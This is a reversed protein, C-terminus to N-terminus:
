CGGNQLADIFGQIDQGNVSGDGNTDCVCPSCPNGPPGSQLCEIFGQIDQGNVSGDCNTDAACCGGGVVLTYDHTEGYYKQGCPDLTEFSGDVMRVRLRTPGAVADNPVTITGYYPGAGSGSLPIYEGADYWDFDQNWDVWAGGIDSYYPNGIYVTIPYSGGVDVNGSIYTFDGYGSPQWTYDFHNIVGTDVTVGDIYESFILHTASCTPPCATGTVTITYPGQAGYAPDLLVPYYYTGPAVESFEVYYNGDNCFGYSSYYIYNYCPCGTVLVIYINGFPPNTGCYEVRINLCDETYFAEWCERLGLLYCDVTSGSNDGNFVLPSGEQLLVPTVDQCNDNPPPPPPIVGTINLQYPGEVGGCQTYIPVYYTGAPLAYYYTTINGDGCSYFDYASAFVFSGSCPCSQDLVIGVTNFAPSTGCYDITIDLTEQTTFQEWVEGPWGLYPCDPTAGTNDGTYTLTGGGLPMTQGVSGSCDDNPPPSAGGSTTVTMTYPGISGAEAYIPIYWTGAPLNCYYISANNDGCSYFDYSSAFYYSSCPCGDVVVIFVTFFSPTTGCFDITVNASGTLTIGEWVERVGFLPCDSTAGATTGYFTVSDGPNLVTPSVSSCDDNPPPPPPVVTTINVQYAHQNGPGGYIPLYYTGAPLGYYYTTGNGDGCTYFDYGSAFILYNCPCADALIIGITNFAPSTGCYDIVVDAPDNITFAEWANPWGLLNCDATSGSTDGYFTQSGPVSIVTPTVASCDDNPPPPPPYAASVTITYTGNSGYSPDYLVPYYYNGAPLGSWTMQLRGDGCTWGYSAAASFTSCPCDIALNLWANNFAEVSGCYELTVDLTQTTYFAPDWSAPYAGFPTCDSPYVACLNDNTWSQPSGPTLEVLPPLTTCTTNCAAIGGPPESTMSGSGVPFVTQPGANQSNTAISNREPASSATIAGNQQPKVSVATGKLEPKVTKSPVARQDALSSSAIFLMAAATCLSKRLM